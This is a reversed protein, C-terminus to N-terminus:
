RVHDNPAVNVHPRKRSVTRPKHCGPPTVTRRSGFDCDYHFRPDFSVGFRLRGRIVCSANHSDDGWLPALAHRDAAKAPCIFVLGKDGVFYKRDKVPLTNRLQKLRRGIEDPGEGNRAAAYVHKRVTQFGRGFAKPPLLLCTRNDRNTVEEGIAWRLARVRALAQSITKILRNVAHGMQNSTRTREIDLAGLPVVLAEVGFKELLADDGGEPRDVYLLTLNANRLLSERAFSERQKLELAVREYLRWVYEETYSSPCRLGRLPVLEGGRKEFKAALPSMIEPQLGAVVVFERRKM